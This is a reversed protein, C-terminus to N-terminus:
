RSRKLSMTVAGVLEPLSDLFFKLCVTRRKITPVCREKKGQELVRTFILELVLKGEQHKRWSGKMGVISKVVELVGALLGERGGDGLHSTALSCLASLLEAQRKSAPAGSQIGPM